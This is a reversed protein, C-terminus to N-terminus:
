RRPNCDGHRRPEIADFPPTHCRRPFYPSDPPNINESVLLLVLVSSSILSPLCLIGDHM